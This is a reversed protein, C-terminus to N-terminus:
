SSMLTWLMRVKVNLSFIVVRREHLFVVVWGGERDVVVVLGRGCDVVGVM